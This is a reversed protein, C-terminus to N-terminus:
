VNRGEQSEIVVLAGSTDKALKLGAYIRAKRDIRKAGCAVAQRIKRAVCVKAQRTMSRPVRIGAKRMAEHAWVEAEYEQMHAPKKSKVHLYFHACQHLYIYLSKRTKPRPAHLQRKAFWAWGSLSKRYVVTVNAPTHKAAVITCRAAMAKRGTRLRAVLAQQEVQWGKAGVKIKQKM